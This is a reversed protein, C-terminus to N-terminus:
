IRWWGDRMSMPRKCIIRPYRIPVGMMCFLLAHVIIPELDTAHDAKKVFVLYYPDSMDNTFPIISFADEMELWTHIGDFLKADTVGDLITCEENLPLVKKIEWGNISFGVM